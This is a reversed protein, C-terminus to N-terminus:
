DSSTGHDSTITITKHGAETVDKVIEKKLNAKVIVAETDFDATHRKRSPCIYNPEAIFLVERFFYNDVDDFPRNMGITMRVLAKDLKQNKVPDMVGRRKAFNLISTQQKNGLKKKEDELRKKKLKDKKKAQEIKLIKVEKKENHKNFM